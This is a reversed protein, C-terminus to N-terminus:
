PPNPDCSEEHAATRVMQTASKKITISNMGLLSPLFLDDMRYTVTVKLQVGPCRDRCAPPTVVIDAQSPQRIILGRDTAVRRARDQINQNAALSGVCDQDLIDNM